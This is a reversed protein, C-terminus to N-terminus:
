KSRRSEWDSLAALLGVDTNGSIGFIPRGTENPYIREPFTKGVIKSYADVLVIRAGPLHRKMYKKEYEMAEGLLALSDRHAHCALVQVLAIRRGLDDVSALKTLCQRLLPQALKERLARDQIRMIASSRVEEAADGKALEILTEQDDVFEVAAKVKEAAFNRCQEDPDSRAIRALVERDHLDRIANWRDAESRASSAVEALRRQERLFSSAEQQLAPDDNENRLRRALSFDKLSTFAARRVADDAGSQMLALMDAKIRPGLEPYQLNELAELRAERHPTRTAVAALSDQERIRAVAAVAVDKSEDTCAIRVRVEDENLKEIAELRVKESSDNVALQTLLMQDRERDTYRRRGGGDEYDKRYVLENIVRVAALRVSEEGDQALERAISEIVDYDSSYNGDHYARKQWARLAAARVKADLDQEALKRLIARSHPEKLNLRDVSAARITADPHKWKPRLLGFLSM